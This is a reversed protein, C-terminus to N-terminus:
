FRALNADAAYDLPGIAKVCAVRQITHIFRVVKMFVKPVSSAQRACMCLTRQGSPGTHGFHPATLLAAAMALRGPTNRHWAQLACNVTVTPVAISPVCRGSRCQYRAMYRIILVALGILAMLRDRCIPMWYRVHQCRSCRSRAISVLPSVMGSDAMM